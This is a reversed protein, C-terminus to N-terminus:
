SSKFVNIDPKIKCITEYPYKKYSILGYAMASINNFIVCKEEPFYLASLTILSDTMSAVSLPFLIARPNGGGM